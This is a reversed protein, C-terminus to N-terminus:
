PGEPDNEERITQGATDTRTGENGFENQRPTVNDRPQDGALNNGGQADVLARQSAAYAGAAM